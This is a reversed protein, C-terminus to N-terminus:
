STRRRKPLMNLAAWAALESWCYERSGRAIVAPEAVTTGELRMALATLTRGEGVIAVAAGDVFDSASVGHGDRANAEVEAPLLARKACLTAFGVQWWARAPGEAQALACLATWARVECGVVEAEFAVHRGDKLLGLGICRLPPIPYLEKLAATFVAVEIAPTGPGAGAIEPRDGAPLM